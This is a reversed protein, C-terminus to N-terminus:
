WEPRFHQLFPQKKLLNEQRWSVPHEPARDSQYDPEQDGEQSIGTHESQESQGAKFM